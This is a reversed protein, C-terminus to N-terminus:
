EDCVLALSPNRISISGNAQHALGVVLLNATEPLTYEIVSTIWGTTGLKLKYDRSSDLLLRDEGIINTDGFVRLYIGGGPELKHTLNNANLSLKIDAKYRVRVSPWSATKVVQKLTFWPQKGVKTVKLTGSNTKIIFSPEGAHQGGGWHDPLFEEASHLFQANRLLNKKPDCSEHSPIEEAGATQHYISQFLLLALCWMVRTNSFM